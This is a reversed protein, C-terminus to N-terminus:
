NTVDTELMYTYDYYIANETNRSVGTHKQILPLPSLTLDSPKVLSHLMIFRFALLQTLSFLM